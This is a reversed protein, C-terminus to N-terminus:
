HSPPFYSDFLWGTAMGIGLGACTLVLDALLLVIFEFWTM